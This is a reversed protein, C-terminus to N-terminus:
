GKAQVKLMPYKIDGVKPLPYKLDSVDVDSSLKVVYKEPLVMLCGICDVVAGRLLGDIGPLDFFNALNTLNFDIFQM